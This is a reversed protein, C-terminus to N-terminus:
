RSACSFKFGAITAHYTAAFGKYGCSKMGGAEPIKINTACGGLFIVSVIILTKM